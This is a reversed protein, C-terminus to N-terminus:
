ETGVALGNRRLDAVGIRRGSKPDIWITHASGQKERTSVVHGRSRLNATLARFAKEEREELQIRDPFWQHHMRPAAVADSVSMEFELVNLLVGTVTNIITRGGPSGTVLVPKGDRMVITPSQSSLMRKGPAILNAATGIRGARTTVGPFWNFDGMENNLLFGGRRVVVRSGWSAELTYTNAVAMGTRDVVSFHTTENSEDALTIEPALTESKTARDRDIGRAQSVAFESMTLETPIDSFAPDGLHKARQCFSRRMAEAMLHAVLGPDDRHKRLQFSELQQLTLVVCTGGSAPPPAGYIDFGRYRGHTPKRVHARYAALDGRRILGGGRKMEEAILGATEGAYFGDAGEKAIRQLTRALDPLLLKDGARWQGGGPRGYVRRMEAFRPNSESSRRMVRNISGALPADIIFGEEALRAAPEVLRRWPLKGYRQHALALGRVTGPVGVAKHHSTTDNRDYMTQTAARPATERYEICVPETADSPKVMMFGGGGINGAEPWTVALAFAVAVSADVATGGEALVRAGIRTAPPSVSVVMGGASTARQVRAGRVPPAGVVISSCVLLAVTLRLNM